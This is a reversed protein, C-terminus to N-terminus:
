LIENTIYYLHNNQQSVLIWYFSAAISIYRLQKHHESTLRFERDLRHLASLLHPWRILTIALLTLHTGFTLFTYNITEITQNWIFTTYYTFTEDNKRDGLFHILIMFMIVFNNTTNIFFIFMSYFGNYSCILSSNSEKEPHNSPYKEKLPIGFLRMAFLLPACSSQLVKINFSEM